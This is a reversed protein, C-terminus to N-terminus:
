KTSHGRESLWATCKTIVDELDSNHLKHPKESENVTHEYQEWTMSKEKSILYRSFRDYRGGAAMNCGYCQPRVIAENFLVFGGRGSVAHGAQMEKWPKVVGCTVCTCQGASDAYKIRIYRSFLSWAKDKLKKRQMSAVQNALKKEAAKEAKKVDLVKQCEISCTAQRPYKNEGGCVKCRKGM